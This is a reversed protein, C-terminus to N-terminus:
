DVGALHSVSGWGSEGVLWRGGDGLRLTTIAAFAVRWRRTAPLGLLLPLVAEPMGGHSVAVVEHGAHRAAVRELFRGMRARAQGLTEGGPFGAGLDRALWRGYVDNYITHAAPDRRGALVGVMVEQLDRAGIVPRKAVRAIAAATEQARRYPSAYVAALARGALHAAVAEAQRRGLPTLSRDRGDLVRELNAESEGHRVLHLVTVDDM